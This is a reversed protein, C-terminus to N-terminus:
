EGGDEDASGREDADTDTRGGDSRAPMRVTATQTPAPVEEEAPPATGDARRAQPPLKLELAEGKPKADKGRRVVVARLIDEWERGLEEDVAPRGILTARLMWRTGDVGILRSVQVGTKGEALQVQMQSVLETGWPGEREASKGGRRDIDRQLLPRAESWLEGTRPAAFARLELAGEKGALMVSNVQGTKEDVQMRLERGRPPAILLSGLDIWDATTLGAPTEDIDYPGAPTPSEEKAASPDEGSEESSATRSKRRFKM